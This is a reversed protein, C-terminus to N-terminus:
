IRTDGVDELQGDVPTVARRVGEGGGCRGHEASVGIRTRSHASDHHAHRVASVGTGATGRGTKLRALRDVDGDTAGDADPGVEVSVADVVQRDANGSVIAGPRDLDEVAAVCPRHDVTVLQDLLAGTRGTDGLGTVPKTGRHCGTVEVSVPVVIERHTGGTLVDVANGVRAGDGDDGARRGPQCGDAALLEM